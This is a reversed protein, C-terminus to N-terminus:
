SGVLVPALRRWQEIPTPGRQEGGLPTLVQVCVHEAGADHHEQVRAAITEEDGWVVLADVLRDSGGNEIDDPTFGFRQFNNTYNPLMLYGALNERAIARAKEPDTELVAGQEAAILPGSGVQERISATFEPTILYPHIGRTRSAALQLMKPGLAALMREGPPVGQGPQADLEDLYRKMVGLPKAYTGQEKVNDILLQHSVGLGLMVRHGHEAVTAAYGAAVDAASTMWINLIGTAIVARETSALLHNIAPFLDGSVDPIWLATYGLEDLEAATEATEAPDGYRLNGSWLGNGTLDVIDGRATLHQATTPHPHITLQLDLRRQSQHDARHAM